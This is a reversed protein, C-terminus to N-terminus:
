YEEATMITLVRNTITPDAPNESMYRYNQDYYDIKAYIKEGNYSFVILDHEFYPDIGKNFDKFTRVRELIDAVDKESKVRIGLTLVIQCGIFSARCADNLQRIKDTNNLM